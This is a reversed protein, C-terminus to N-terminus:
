VSSALSDQGFDVLSLHSSPVKGLDMGDMQEGSELSNRSVSRGSEKKVTPSFDTYLAMIFIVSEFCGQTLPQLKLQAELPM